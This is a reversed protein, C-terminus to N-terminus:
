GKEDSKGGVPIYKGKGVELTTYVRNVTVDYPIIGGLTEELITQIALALKGPMQAKITYEVSVTYTIEHM